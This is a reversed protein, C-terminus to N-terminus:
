CASMSLRVTKSCPVSGRIGMVDCPQSGHRSVVQSRQPSRSSFPPSGLLSSSRHTVVGCTSSEPPRARIIGHGELGSDHNLREGM